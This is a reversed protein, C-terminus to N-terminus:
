IQGWSGTMHEKRTPRRGITSPSQNSKLRKPHIRKGIYSPIISSAPCQNGEARSKLVHNHWWTYRGQVLSLKCGVLIHRFNQLPNASPARPGEGYWRNLKSCSSVVIFSIHFATM